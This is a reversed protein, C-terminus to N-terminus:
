GDQRQQIDSTENTKKTEVAMNSANVFLTHIAKAVLNPLQKELVYKKIEDSLMEAFWDRKLESHVRDALDAQKVIEDENLEESKMMIDDVDIEDRTLIDNNSIVDSWDIKDVVREAVKDWDIAERMEYDWDRNSIADDVASEVTDNFDHEDVADSVADAIQQKIADSATVTHERILEIVREETIAPAHANANADVSKEGIPTFTITINHTMHM